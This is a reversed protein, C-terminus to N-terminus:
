PVTNIVLTANAVPRVGMDIVVDTDLANSGSMLDAQFQHDDYTTDLAFTVSWPLNDGSGLSGSTPFTQDPVQTVGDAKVAPDGDGQLFKVRITFTGAFVGELSYTGGVEVTLGLTDGPLPRDIEVENPM